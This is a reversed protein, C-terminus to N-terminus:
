RSRGRGLKLSADAVATSVARGADYHVQCTVGVAPAVDFLSRAHKVLSKASQQYLFQSDAHIVVGAHQGIGLTARALYLDYIGPKIGLAKDVKVTDWRGGHDNQLLRHGNMVLLRQKPTTELAMM